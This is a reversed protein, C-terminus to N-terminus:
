ATSGSPIVESPRRFKGLPVFIEFRAGKGDEGTEAITMGSSTVIEKALFLGYGTNKGYGAQFILDKEEAPIGVGNDEFTLLLGEDKVNGSITIDTVVKGHQQANDILNYFVKEVLPDALIELDEIDTAIRIGELRHAAAAQDISGRVDIWMPADLGMRQYDRTFELCGEISRLAAEAKSLHSASRVDAVGARAITVFGHAVTLKNIIDHRTISALLNLKKNAMALANEAEKQGTLDRGVCQYELNGAEDPICRITWSMWRESPDGPRTYMQDTVVAEGTASAKRCNVMLDEYQANTCLERLDKHVITGEDMSLFSLLAKNAFRMGGNEDMRFIFETQDNVVAHYRKESEALAKSMAMITEMSRNLEDALHTLEDAGDMEIKETLGGNSSIDKVQRSLRDLRRTTFRDTLVLLAACFVMSVVVLEGIIVKLFSVAQAYLDRDAQVKIVGAVSGDIGRVARYSSMTTDSEILFLTTGNDVVARWSAQDLGPTSCCSVPYIVTESRITDSIERAAGDNMLRGVVLFGEADRLDNDCISHASIVMLGEETDVLGHVADEPRDMRVDQLSHLVTDVVANTM